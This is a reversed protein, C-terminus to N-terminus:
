RRHAPDFTRAAPLTPPPSCQIQVLLKWATFAKSGVTESCRLGPSQFSSVDSYRHEEGTELSRMWLGKRASALPTDLSFHPRDM